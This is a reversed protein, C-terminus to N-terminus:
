DGLAKLIAARLDADDPTTKPSFRAIVKGDRGVLYKTFNWTPEELGGALLFDYIPSRDEGKVDLKAFMPFTVGYTASCFERIEAATGPEQGLFQNCPFGLVAFGREALEAHLKELGEYQPTLGCKSATNVALVVKGRWDGLAAPEGELTQTSLDWFSGETEKTPTQMEGAMAGRVKWAALGGGIVLAGLAIMVLTKM